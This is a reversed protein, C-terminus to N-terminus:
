RFAAAFVSVTSRGSFITRFILPASLTAGTTSTVVVSTTFAFISGDFGLGIESALIKGVHGSLSGVSLLALGLAELVVVALMPHEVAAAGVAPELITISSASAAAVASGTADDGRVAVVISSAALSFVSGDVHLGVSTALVNSRGRSRVGLVTLGLAELVVVALRPREVCATVSTPQLASLGSTSAAVASGTANDCGVTAIVVTTGFGFVSDDGVIVTLRALLTRTSSPDLVGIVFGGDSVGHKLISLGATLLHEESSRFSADGNRNFVRASPRAFVSVKVDALTDKSLDGVLIVSNDLNLPRPHLHIFLDNL